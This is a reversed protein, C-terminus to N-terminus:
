GVRFILAPVEGEGFMRGFRISRLLLEALEDGPILPLVAQQLFVDGSLDPDIFRPDAGNKPALDLTEGQIPQDAVRLLKMRSQPHLDNRGLSDGPRNKTHKM